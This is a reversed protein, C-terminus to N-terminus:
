RGPRRRRSRRQPAGRRSLATAGASGHATPLRQGVARLASLRPSDSDGEKRPALKVSRAVLRLTVM